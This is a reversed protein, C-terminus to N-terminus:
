KLVKAYHAKAPSKILEVPDNEGIIMNSSKADITFKDLVQGTKSMYINIDLLLKDPKGTWATLNDEWYNIVPEVIYDYKAKEDPSLSKYDSVCSLITVDDLFDDLVSKIELATTRGSKANGPYDDPITVAYTGTRLIEQAESETVKYSFSTCAAFIMILALEVSLLIKKM